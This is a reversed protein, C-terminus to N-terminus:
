LTASYPMFLCVVVVMMMMSPLVARKSGCGEKSSQVHNSGTELEKSKAVINKKNLSTTLRVDL